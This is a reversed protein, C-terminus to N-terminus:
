EYNFYNPILLSSIGGFKLKSVQVALVWSYLMKYELDGERELTPLPSLLANKYVTNYNAFKTVGASKCQSTITVKLLM